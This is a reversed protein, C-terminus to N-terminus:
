ATRFAAHYDAPDIPGRAVFRGGRAGTAVQGRSTLVGNVWV